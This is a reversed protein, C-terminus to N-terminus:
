KEFLNEHKKFFDRYARVNELEYWPRVCVPEADLDYVRADELALLFPSHTAVILQCSCYRALETLLAALELQMAPSMSNEPEDLLYLTDNELRSDFYGLATEGNSMLRVQEGAAAHVFKRRTKRRALMQTKLANYDELGGLRLTEGFKLRAHERRLRVTEDALAENSDRVALMYDFVDDSTIIRSGRPIDRKVGEDDEYVTYRCAEAYSDFLESSNYPSVRELGLSRAMVNLLTSKGSGNGGYLVTVRGFELRDLGKKPFIGCPYGSELYGFAGGNHEMRRRALRYEGEDDPLTFTRIFM